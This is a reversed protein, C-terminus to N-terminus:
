DSDIEPDEPEFIYKNPHLKPNPTTNGNEQSMKEKSGAAQKYKQLSSAMKFM